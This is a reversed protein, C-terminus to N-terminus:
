KQSVISFLHTKKKKKCTLVLRYLMDGWSANLKSDNLEIPEIQIEYDDTLFLMIVNGEGSQLCIGDEQMEAKRPTMFHFEVETNQWNKMSDSLEIQKKERNLSIHRRYYGVDGVEPYASLIDCELSSTTGDKWYRTDKAHYEEGEKQMQGNITPLNHYASQMTWIKYRNEGFHERSYVGVGADVLVPTGNYFCVFNGVDNHNHSDHNGGGKACLFFGKEPDTCERATMIELSNIYNDEEMKAQGSLLVMDKHNKMSSLARSLSLCPFIGQSLQYEYCYSGFDQLLKNKMHCGATFIIEAAPNCRAAGDAFNVVYDRAVYLKRIYDTFQILKNEGYIDIAGETAIYVLNLGELLMGCARGWYTAGEDCGGDESIGSLYYDMMDMARVIGRKRLADDEECFLICILCNMVCWPGWNNIDRRDSYGMWWYDYRTLFPTIIRKKLEYRIRKCVLPEVQDLEKRLLYHCMSLLMGTEGAFIDLTELDVDPLTREGNIWEPEYIFNHASVVWSSEECICWIGNIIQDLKGPDPDLCYDLIQMNLGHRREFYPDEFATRSGSRYYEMYDTAKLMPYEFDRYKEAGDRIIKKIREDLHEWETRDEFRIFPAFDKLSKVFFERTRWGQEQKKTYVQEKLM